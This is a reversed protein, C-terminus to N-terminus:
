PGCGQCYGQSVLCAWSLPSAVETKADYSPVCCKHVKQHILLSTEDGFVRDCYFCRGIGYTAELEHQLLCYPLMAANCLSVDYWVPPDTDKEKAKRKRVM